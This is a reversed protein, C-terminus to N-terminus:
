QSVQIEFTFNQARRVHKSWGIATRWSGVFVLNVLLMNIAAISMWYKRSYM